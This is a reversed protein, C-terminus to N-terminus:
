HSLFNYKCQFYTYRDTNGLLTVFLICSAHRQSHSFQLNVEKDLYDEYDRHSICQAANTILNENMDSYM